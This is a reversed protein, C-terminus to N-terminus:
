VALALQAFQPGALPVYCAPSVPFITSAPSPACGGVQFNVCYTGEVDIGQEVAVAAQSGFENSTAEIEPRLLACRMASTSTLM